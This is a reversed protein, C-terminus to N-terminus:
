LVWQRSSTQWDYRIKGIRRLGHPNPHKFKIQTKYIIAENLGFFVCLQLTFSMNMHQSLLSPIGWEMSCLAPTMPSWNCNQDVTFGSQDERCSRPSPPTSGDSSGCSLLFQPSKSCVISIRLLCDWLVMTHCLEVQLFSLSLVKPFGTGVLPAELPQLIM